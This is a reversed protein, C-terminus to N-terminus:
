VLESTSINSSLDIIILAVVFSNKTTLPASPHLALTTLQRPSIMVSNVNFFVRSSIFTGLAPKIYKFM